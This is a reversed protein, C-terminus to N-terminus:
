QEADDKCDLVLTDGRIKKMVFGPNFIIDLRKFRRVSSNSM